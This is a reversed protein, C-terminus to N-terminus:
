ASTLLLALSRKTVRRYRVRSLGHHTRLLEYTSFSLAVICAELRDEREEESCLDLEPAFSTTVQQRLEKRVARVARAVEDSSAELRLALKASDHIEDYYRDRQEVVAAIRTHLEGESTSDSNARSRELESPELSQKALEAFLDDLDSFHQYISRLSVNAQKAIQEATPKASGSAILSRLAEIIRKRTQMRRKVRGDIPAATM